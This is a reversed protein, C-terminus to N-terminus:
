LQDSTFEHRAEARCRAYGLPERHLSPSGSWLLTLGFQRRGHLSQEVAAQDRQDVSGTNLSASWRGIVNGKIVGM